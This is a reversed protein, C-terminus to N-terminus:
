NVETKITFDPNITIVRKLNLLQEPTCTSMYAIFTKQIETFRGLLEQDNVDLADFSGCVIEQSHDKMYISFTLRKYDFKNEVIRTVSLIDKLIFNSTPTKVLIM